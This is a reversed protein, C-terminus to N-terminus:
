LPAPENARPKAPQLVANFFAITREWALKAAAADYRAASTDNNFAHNVNPYNYTRVDVGANKLAETWAPATANVRDDLGAYHLMMHAKVSAAESPDPSPGYYVVGAALRNGAAVAIRNVLGGGWCFGVAGVRGAVRPNKRLWDLTAVADAITQRPDLATIELRAQDEDAPTGGKATLFDPALAVYDALAARRAVDEIHANLGRNEHIVVIAPLPVPMPRPVALYGKLKRGNAADWQVRQTSLRADQPDTQAAAAPSAEILGLVATAAAVSGALRTLGSMLGRRDLAQHTFRDYLRIMEPTIHPNPM